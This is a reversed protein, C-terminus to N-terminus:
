RRLIITGHQDTRYVTCGFANLRQLLEPAPHGFPNDQGASICVIEPSIQALLEECTSHKSGHHGAILVDVEPIRGTRLLMREGFGDRDGTILIDCKETDFLVCLSKENATGPFNAPFVSLTTNGVTLIMDESAFVTEGETYNQLDSPEPPLILIDTDVRSLLNKVAGAHDRDLHTVVLGDLRSIGRSLLHSVALDATKSDSDGGCDVMYTKGEAELLICQGQGVDLVTLRTDETTIWSALLSICLGLVACCILQFPRCKRSCLFVILLFYVFILWFVLYRSQTYVASLPLDALFEAMSLVYRIPWSCIKGLFVAGSFWFEALLCVGLIGYFIGSICWLVLLNTVPGILSVMGFYYACLPTTLAMASLTVSVSLAIARAIRGSAKGIQSLCWPRILVELLFIGAVSAASLQLSVSRVALPNCFLMVLVAFSLATAGDYERDFLMALLMLASMICARVVSSSFGALAAFLLLMCLGAPVMLFRRRFTVAGLLATLISVHLGSVAVVHRIGSVKLATDTEYSIQSADGLLLAIVFPYTDEPFCTKLQQRIYQRFISIRQPWSPKELQRIAIRGNQYALLFIGKSAQYTMDEETTVRLRFTGKIEAGPGVPEQQHLYVRIPYSKGNLRIRGDVAAGYATEYSYDTTQVTLSRTKGNLAEPGSLYLRSYVQFWCLGLLLGLLVLAPRKLVPFSRGAAALVIAGASSAAILLIGFTLPLFYACLACAATFGITFWMLKRM